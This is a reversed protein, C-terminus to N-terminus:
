KKGQPPKATESISLLKCFIILESLGRYYYTGWTGDSAIEIEGNFLDGSKINQYLELIPETPDTFEFAIANKLEFNKCSLYFLEKGGKKFSCTSNSSIVKGEAFIEDLISEAESKAKKSESYKEVASLQESRNYLSVANIVGPVNFPYKTEGQLLVVTFCVFASLLIVIKKM